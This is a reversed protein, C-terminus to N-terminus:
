LDKDNEANCFAKSSVAFTEDIIRKIITADTVNEWIKAKEPAVSPKNFVIWSIKGTLATHM